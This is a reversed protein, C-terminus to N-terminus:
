IIFLSLNRSLGSFSVYDITSSELLSSPLIVSLHLIISPNNGESVSNGSQKLLEVKCFEGFSSKFCDSCSFPFTECLLLSSDTSINLQWSRILSSDKVVTLSFSFKLSTVWIAICFICVLLWSSYILRMYHGISFLKSLDSLAIIDALVIIFGIGFRKPSFGLNTM